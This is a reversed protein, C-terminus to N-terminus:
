EGAQRGTRQDEALLRMYIDRRADAYFPARTVDVHIIIM